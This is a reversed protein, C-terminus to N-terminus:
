YMKKGNNNFNIAVFFQNNLNNQNYFTSETSVYLRGFDEADIYLRLIYIAIDDIGYAM